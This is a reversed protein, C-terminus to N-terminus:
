VGYRKMYERCNRASEFAQPLVEDREVTLYVAPQTQVISLIGEFDVTGAGLDTFSEGRTDKLHLYRIRELFETMLGVPSAGVREVWGIDFCLSVLDPDTNKLLSRLEEQDNEIEWWHNHYCYTLGRERCMEGVRNLVDALSHSDFTDKRLSVDGSALLYGSGVALAFDAAQSPYSLDGTQAQEFYYKGLTHLGAVHLGQDKVLSLFPKPNELNTIRHAGIEVGGYGAAAIENLMQPLKEKHYEAGWVNTQIGVNM